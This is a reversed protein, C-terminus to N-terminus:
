AGSHVGAKGRAPKTRPGKRPLKCRRARGSFHGLEIQRNVLGDLLDRLQHHRGDPTGGFLDIVYHISEITSYCHPKPQRRVMFNSFSPPTFCIFPLDSFNKSLRKMRKAHSWTADIVFVLPTKGPPILKKREPLDITSLNVATPGPYLIMPYKTPDRLLRNVAENETFDTGEILHSNTLVLHSLRGTAVSRKTETRHILIVFEPTSAFPEM